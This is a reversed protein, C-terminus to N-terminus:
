RKPRMYLCKGIMRFHYLKRMYNTLHDCRFWVRGNAFKKEPM